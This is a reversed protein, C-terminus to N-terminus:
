GNQIRRETQRKETRANVITRWHSSVSRNHLTWTMYNGDTGYSWDFELRLRPGPLSFNLGSDCAKGSKLRTILNVIGENDRSQGYKLLMAEYFVATPVYLDSVEDFIFPLQTTGESSVMGRAFPAELIGPAICVTRETTDLRQIAMGILQDDNYKEM